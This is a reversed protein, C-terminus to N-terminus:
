DDAIEVSIRRMADWRVTEHYVRGDDYVALVIGDREERTVMRGTTEHGERDLVTVLYDRGAKLPEVGALAAMINRADEVEFDM